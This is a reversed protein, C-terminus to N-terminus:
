RGARRLRAALRRAEAVKSGSSPDDHPRPLETEEAEWEKKQGRDAAARGAARRQRARAADVSATLPEFGDLLAAGIANTAAVLEPAARFNGTLPLAVGNPERGEAFRRHERRYVEVDAHRFGYISQFEDGVLFLRTDPGRLQEILRLQLGNTDQFEDVMLHRFQERYRDRLLESGALLEVAKLQLDEFDLASREAKLEEYREGFGTVLERLQEYAPALVFAAVASRARKLARTYRECAEGKFHKGPSVIVLSGLRELLEEGPEAAPDLETAAAIRERSILGKSRRPRRASPRAGGDRGRDAREARRRISPRRPPLAPEPYGHSRLEDYAGRTM